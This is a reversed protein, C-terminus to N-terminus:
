RPTGILDRKAHHTVHKSVSMYSDVGGISRSRKSMFCARKLNSRPLAELAVHFLM